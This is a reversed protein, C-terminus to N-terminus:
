EARRRGSRLRHWRAKYDDTGRHNHSSCITSTALMKLTFHLGVRQQKPLGIDIPYQSRSAAECEQSAAREFVSKTSEQHNSVTVNLLWVFVTIM